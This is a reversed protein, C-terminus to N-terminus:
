KAKHQRRAAIRSDFRYCVRPLLLSIMAVAVALAVPYGRGGKHRLWQGLWKGSAACENHLRFDQKERSLAYAGFSHTCVSSTHLPSLSLPLCVTCANIKCANRRMNRMRRMSRVKIVNRIPKVSGCIRWLRQFNDISSHILAHMLTQKLTQTISENSVVTGCVCVRQTYTIHTAEGTALTRAARM